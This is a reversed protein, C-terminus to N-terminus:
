EISEEYISENSTDIPKIRKNEPETEQITEKWTIISQIQSSIESIQSNQNELIRETSSIHATIKEDVDIALTSMQTELAKIENQFKLKLNDIKEELRQQNVELQKTLDLYNQQLSNKM